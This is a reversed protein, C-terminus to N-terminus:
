DMISADRPLSNRSFRGGRREAEERLMLFVRTIFLPPTREGSKRFSKKGESMTECMSAMPRPYASGQPLCQM